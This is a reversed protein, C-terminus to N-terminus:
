SSVLFTFIPLYTQTKLLSQSIPQQRKEKEQLMDKKTVIFYIIVKSLSANLISQTAHEMM